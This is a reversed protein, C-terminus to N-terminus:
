RNTIETALKIDTLGTEKNVKAFQFQEYSLSM